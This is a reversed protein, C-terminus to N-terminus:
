ICYLYWCDIIIEFYNIM